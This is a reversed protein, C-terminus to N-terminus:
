FLDEEDIARQVRSAAIVPADPPVDFMPFRGARKQRSREGGMLGKRALQSLVKGLRQGSARALHVAAEYVDRDLTM